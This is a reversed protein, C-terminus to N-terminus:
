LKFLRYLRNRVKNWFVIKKWEYVRGHAQESWIMLHDAEWKEKMKPDHTKADEHVNAVSLAERILLRKKGKVMRLWLEFDLSCQLKEWIPQHIGSAWFTSPQILTPMKIFYDIHPLLKVTEFAKERTNFNLGYGYIFAVNKLLFQQMVRFFVFKLYYDDSNIWAYYDGSALSFGLNIAHGQGRDKRSRWYSIWPAYKKILHLTQEDASGGDIIIFELNPYNQLLVSRITEELFGGQNYSPTVISLKPWSLRKDYVSPSTQETWPWGTKNEEPIPLRALLGEAEFPVTALPLVVGGAEFQSRYHSLSPLDISM